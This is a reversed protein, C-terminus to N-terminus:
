LSKKSKHVMIFLVQKCNHQHTKKDQMHKFIFKMREM